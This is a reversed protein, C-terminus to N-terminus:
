RMSWYGTRELQAILLECGDRMHRQAVHRAAEADRARLAGLLARHQEMAPGTWGPVLCHFDHPVTRLMVGLARALRPAGAYRHIIRHFRWNLEDIDGPAGGALREMEEQLAACSAILEDGATRAARASLEGSLYGSV